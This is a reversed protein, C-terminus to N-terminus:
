FVVARSNIQVFIHYRQKWLMLNLLFIKGDCKPFLSDVPSPVFLPRGKPFILCIWTLDMFEKFYFSNVNYEFLPTLPTTFICVDFHVFKAMKEGFFQLLLCNKVAVHNVFTCSYLFLTLADSCIRM